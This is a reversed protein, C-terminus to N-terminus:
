AARLLQRAADGRGARRVAGHRGNQVRHGRQQGARRRRRLAEPRLRPVGGRQRRGHRGASPIEAAAGAREPRGGGQPRPRRGPGDPVRRRRVERM